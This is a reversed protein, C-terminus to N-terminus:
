YRIVRHGLGERTATEVMNKTGRSQGDWFAILHTAYWAMASNRLMGAAKGFRNWNAPFGTVRWQDCGRAQAELGYREGLKDVGRARGQVIELPGDRFGSLVRDCKAQLQHFDQFDRGGAIIVRPALDGHRMSQWRGPLLVNGPVPISAMVELIEDERYEGAGCGVRTWMFQANPQSAAAAFGLEIAEGIQDLTRRQGNNMVPIALSQGPGDFYRNALTEAGTKKAPDADVGHAFVLNSHDIIDM